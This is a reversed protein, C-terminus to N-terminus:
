TPARNNATGPHIGATAGATASRHHDGGCYVYLRLLYSILSRLFFYLWKVALWHGALWMVALWMVALWMVALWMVAPPSPVPLVPVTVLALM